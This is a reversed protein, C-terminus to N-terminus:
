AALLLAPIKALAGNVAADVAEAGLAVGEVNLVQVDTIGMFGLVVRLYPEQFDYAQMPGESYFGGRAQVIYATKGSVLGQPQGDVYAFTSGPMMLHDIWSKMSSSIGFNIMASAIVLTDAALLEAILADAVAVAESQGGTREVSQIMRGVVYDAAIHMPPAAGLDRITTKSGPKTRELADVLAKAVTTSISEAGRPSSTVLLINAM